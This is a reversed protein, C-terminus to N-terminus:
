YGFLHYSKLIMATAIAGGFMGCSCILGVTSLLSLGSIGNGSTCGRAMRAGFLLCFGGIFASAYTVPSSIDLKALSM